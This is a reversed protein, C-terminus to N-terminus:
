KCCGFIVDNYELPRNTVSAQTVVIKEKDPMVTVSQGGFGRCGYWGEGLWWLFGYGSDQPSPSIAQQIYEKSIIRKGKWMGQQYFLLGLKLMDRATLDSWKEKEDDFAVSYYVGDPSKFWRDSKIELPKYNRDEIFDYCDGTVNSLIAAILIVDWEKYNHRSGPLDVVKCDAIYDVWMKSRIMADMQPCHYHVGGQWFIGSSMTLLHRIKIKRHLLDRREDFEPIYKGIPDDINLLGEDQAIGVAISLISKVVSKIRHRSEAGCHNFYCEAAIEGKEWVLISNIQPHHAHRMYEHIDM